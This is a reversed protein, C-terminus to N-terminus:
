RKNINHQLVRQIIGQEADVLVEDGNELLDTVGAVQVIAPIGMERAFIAGHSLFGGVETVIAACSIIAYTLNPTLVPAVIVADIPIHSYCERDLPNM